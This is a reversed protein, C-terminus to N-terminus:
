KRKNRIKSLEIGKHKAMHCSRCLPIQKRNAKVMLKDIYSEMKKPNLDKMVRVHHMEVRYDSGCVSSKLEELSAISKSGYLSTIIPNAKVNFKFTIKYSPKFFKIKKPSELLNGFKEYVKKMTGLNFKTALLKVCSQKLYLYLISVLRDYNHAFSYYNIFGRFVANYLYIIQDHNHHLWIFRPHSKGSKIFGVNTLKDLVRNIPVELRLKLSGRQSINRYNIFYKTHHSRSILTGLFLAKSSNINTIKTKNESVDLNIDSCLKSVKDLITQAEQYTGRIGIVWDDAYRVYSLRRYNPDRFNTAPLTSRLITLEKLQNMHGEAKAKAIRYELSRSIHTRQAKEGRNFETKLTAIYKDLENLYINALIPSIVSGQPTGIINHQYQSFQMYGARLSKWILRTFRRDLIKEEILSMLLNHNFSDFCKSIDGEIIWTTAMFSQSISKLATHCSRNPRFGHSSEQFLPEYIAELIIRMAEQVIKDMPPAVTLPRTGGSPKPINVRRGPTFQFSENKLRESLEKIREFSIGDFTEPTIGPTMNGPNSKINHYALTLLNVDYILSHLNKDIPLNPFKISRTRLGDLRSTANSEVMARETSYSRFKSKFSVLVRGRSVSNGTCYLFSVTGAPVITNRDGYFNREKPSGTTAICIRVNRKPLASEDKFISRANGTDLIEKVPSLVLGMLQLYIVWGLLTLARVQSALSHYAELLIAKVMLFVAQLSDPTIQNAWNRAKSQSAINLLLSERNDLEIATFM